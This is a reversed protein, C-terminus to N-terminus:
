RRKAPKFWDLNSARWTLREPKNQQMSSRSQDAPSASPAPLEEAPSINEPTPHTPSGFPLADLTPGQRVDPGLGDTETNLDPLPIVEPLLYQQGPLVPPSDANPGPAMDRPYPIPKFHWGLPGVSRFREEYFRIGHTELITGTEAALNALEINYLALFQNENSVANGWDTIAQLVNLYLTARGTRFDALQRDLNDRAAARVRTYAAYQDYYQSMYRFNGALLHTAEFLSQDLNARDRQLILEQQRLVARERRLGLPVSFNVGAEWDALDGGSGLYSGDPTRGALGNWRYLGVADLRPQANNRALILQQQDAELILKFEIVDPRYEQALLLVTEWETQLKATSLPSSPILRRGDSPSLGMINRLQAERILLNAESAILNARFTEYSVRALAEESANGIGVKVRSVERDLAERGQDVQQRRAWVDVRAFSLQWYAEVTGRVLQQVTGKLQFFSRETDIRAILIRALNAPAGAGQMLPQNVGISANNSTVPNLPLGFADVNARNVNVNSSITGGTIFQKQIGSTSNFGDTAPAQIEVQPVPLPNVIVGQPTETRSFTNQSQLAPDFQARQQDIQTNAIGPDYITAGSNVATTGALVRVVEANALSTRIAEDLTLQWLPNQLQQNTVTPPPPVIPIPIQRLESPDRIQIQRQEPLILRRQEHPPAAAIQQNLLCCVMLLVCTFRRM